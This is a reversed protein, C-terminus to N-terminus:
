TMEAVQVTFQFLAFVPKLGIYVYRVTEKFHVFNIWSWDGCFVGITVM